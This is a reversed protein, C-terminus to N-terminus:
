ECDEPIYKIEIISNTNKDYKCLLGNSSYYPSPAIAQNAYFEGNWWYVIYTSSDYYMYKNIKILSINGIGPVQRINANCGNLMLLSIMMLAIVKKNM